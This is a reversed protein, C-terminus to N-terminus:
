FVKKTIECKICYCIERSRDPDIDITDIVWEHDCTQEILINIYSLLVKLNDTINVNMENDDYCDLFEKLLHSNCKIEFYDNNLSKIKNKIHAMKHKLNIQQYILQHLVHFIDQLIVKESNM